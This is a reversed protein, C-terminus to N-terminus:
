DDDHAKVVNHFASPWLMTHEGPYPRHWNTASYWIVHNLFREDVIDAKTMNPRMIRNSAVNWAKEFPSMTHTNMTYNAPGTGPIPVNGPGINLATNAPTVAVPTLDAKNQFANFMPTAVRDFQSMPQVGLINEITREMNVVTYTTDIVKGVGSSQPAIAYPSIVYAPERHGDIHDVGDQSDDETVFIASSSWVKSHSIASVLRGLALDNDAEYNNPLPNGTTTGNTHDNPLWIVTLNPVQNAADQAALLPLYYDMRYQDPIGLNFSPYHPDLLKNVAPIQSQESDSNPPVVNAGSKGGSENYLSTNYFDAWTYPQDTAPNNAVVSADSWEGYIKVNLGKAVANTWIYGKQTFTLADNDNGGPYSRIWDPSQIDNSYFSGAEITWPHGDASQRSPAYFNDLLPFRQIFAHQNPVNAGFVALSPDGAGQAVDGLMQDYTRNEKIIYWVHKILSPEGIRKPVAVAKADPDAGTLDANASLWHNNNYVKVTDAALEAATPIKILSVAGTDQHTNFASVGHATGISGQAGTGKDNAVVLQSTGPDYGIATPFYLTPIYGIVANADSKSLDVVAVANSEGLTVYLRNGVVAVFDAGAGFAGNALPVGVPITRVVTNTATSIVSVTDSYANAVYVYGNSQAMGAPRLGVNITAAVQGSTNIVSVTGTTAAGTTKDAVMPTGDSLTTFDSATATRGGENAVYAYNGAIIVHNPANGVPIQGILAGSTPNFVGVANSASLAVLAENDDVVAIGGPDATGATYLNPNNPAPITVTTGQTLEGNVPSVNVVQVKSDDQSFMLKTGDPSYAIGAFSGTADPTFTSGSKAVPVYRQLVAGTRTDFVIVPEAASMLLVAATHTKTNPNLAIAKARVPSGLQVTVGAPTLLQNSSALISGNLQPGVTKTETDAAMAFGPAALVVALVSALSRNLQTRM